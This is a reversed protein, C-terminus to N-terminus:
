TYSGLHGKRPGQAGSGGRPWNSKPRPSGFGANSSSRCSLLPRVSSVVNAVAVHIVDAHIVVAVHIVDVHIVVAIHIVVANYILDVHIM